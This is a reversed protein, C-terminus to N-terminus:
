AQQIINTVFGMRHRDYMKLLVAGRLTFVDHDECPTESMMKKFFPEEQRVTSLLMHESDYRKSFFVM